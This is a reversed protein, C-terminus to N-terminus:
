NADESEHLEESLIINELAKHTGPDLRDVNWSGFKLVDVVEPSSKPSHTETKELQQHLKRM